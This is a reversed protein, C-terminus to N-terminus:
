SSAPQNAAAPLATEVPASHRAPDDGSAAGFRYSSVSLGGLLDDQHYVRVGADDGAAGVAVMLPILHDEQPHAIRASPASSWNALAAVREQPDAEVVVRHLWDDFAKSPVAARADFASLNHYSLGSGIILVGEERLPALARGLAIHEMPDLGRKMSLQVIPVDAKPYIVSMPVFAGHDFGREADAAAPLGAGEILEQVSRALQPADPADYRVRYAFDPFGGYDNCCRHILIPRSPSPM